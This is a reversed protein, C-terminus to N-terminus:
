RTKAGCKEWFIQKGREGAEHRIRTCRLPNRLQLNAGWIVPVSSTLTTPDSLASRSTSAQDGFLHLGSVLGPDPPSYAMVAEKTKLSALDGPGTASDLEVLEIQPRAFLM